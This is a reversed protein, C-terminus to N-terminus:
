KSLYNCYINNGIKYGSEISFKKCEYDRIAYDLAKDPSDIKNYECM